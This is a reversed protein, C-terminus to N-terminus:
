RERTYQPVDMIPEELLETSSANPSFYMRSQDDSLLGFTYLSSMPPVFFGSYRQTFSTDEGFESSVYHSDRFFKDIIHSYASRPRSAVSNINTDGEIFVERLAGREGTIIFM